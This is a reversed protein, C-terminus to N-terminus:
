KKLLPEKEEQSPNEEDAISPPTNAVMQANKVYTYRGFGALSLAYGFAQLVTVM